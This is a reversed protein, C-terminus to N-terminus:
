KRKKKVVTTKKSANIIKTADEIAKDYFSIIRKLEVRKFNSYGDKLMKDSTNLVEDFEMKKKNCYKVIKRAHAGKINLTHMAGYASSLNEFGSSIYDDLQGEIEGLCESVKENIRDQINIVNGTTEKKEEKYGDLEELLEEIQSNFKNLDKEELEGGNSIIRCLYGFTTGYKRVILEPVSLKHKKKVYAIVYKYADKKSKNQAYWSLAPGINTSKVSKPEPGAFKLNADLLRTAM